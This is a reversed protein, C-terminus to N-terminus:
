EAPGILRAPPKGLVRTRFLVAARSILYILTFLFGAGVVMWVTRQPYPGLEDVISQGEHEGAGLYSYNTGLVANLAIVIAAFGIGAVIAFVLHRFTPRYGLVVIDYIAAGVIQVHNLWYIWFGLELLGHDLFPTFLGQTSLGIGWFLLLARARPNLTLMAWAAIWVSWRCMHFPLSEQLDWQGPTFRRVFIFAQTVLISWALVRRFTQERSTGNRLDQKLLYKGVICFVVFSGVCIGLVLWHFSTFARFENLWNYDDPNTVPPPSIM